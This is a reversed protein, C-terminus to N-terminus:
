FHVKYKVSRIFDVQNLLIRNFSYWYKVRMFIAHSTGNHPVDFIFFPLVEMWELRFLFKVLYRSKLLLIHRYYPLVFVTNPRSEAACNHNTRLAQLLFKDDMRDARFCWNNKFKSIRDKLIQVNMKFSCTLICISQQTNM